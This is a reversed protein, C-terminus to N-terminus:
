AFLKDVIQCGYTFFFSTKSSKLMDNILCKILTFLKNVHTIKHKSLLKWKLTEEATMFIDTLKRIQPYAIDSM